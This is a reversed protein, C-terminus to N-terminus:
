TGGVVMWWDRLDLVLRVHALSHEPCLALLALPGIREMVPADDEVNQTAQM